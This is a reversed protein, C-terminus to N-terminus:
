WSICMFSASCMLFSLALDSHYGVAKEYTFTPEIMYSACSDTCLKRRFAWEMLKSLNALIDTKLPFSM